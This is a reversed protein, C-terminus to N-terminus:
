GSVDENEKCVMQRDGEDCGWKAQGKVERPAEMHVM